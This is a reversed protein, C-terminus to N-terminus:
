KLIAIAAAVALDPQLNSYYFKNDGLQEDIKFVKRQLSKFLRIINYPYPVLMKFGREGIINDRAMM